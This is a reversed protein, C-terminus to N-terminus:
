RLPMENSSFFDISSPMSQTCQIIETMGSTITACANDTGTRVCEDKSPGQASRCNQRGKFSVCVQCQTGQTQLIDHTMWLAPAVVAAVILLAKAWRPIRPKSRYLPQNM